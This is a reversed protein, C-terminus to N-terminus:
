SGPTLDPFKRDLIRNWEEIRHATKEFLDAVDGEITINKIKDGQVIQDVIAQDEDGLVEGDGAEAIDEGALEEADWEGGDALGFAAEADGGGVEHFLEQAAKGRSGLAEGGFQEDAGARSGPFVRLGFGSM